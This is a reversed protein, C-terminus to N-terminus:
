VTGATLYYEISVGKMTSCIHDKTSVKSVVVAATPGGKIINHIIIM